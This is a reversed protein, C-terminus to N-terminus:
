GVYKAMKVGGTLCFLHMKRCYRLIWEHVVHTDRRLPPGMHGGMTPMAFEGSIALFRAINGSLPCVPGGRRPIPLIPLLLGVYKTM